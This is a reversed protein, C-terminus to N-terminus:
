ARKAFRGACYIGAAFLLLLYVYTPGADCGSGGGGTENPCIVNLNISDSINGTSATITVRGKDHTTVFGNVDVTAVDHNDSTWTIQGTAHWPEVLAAVYFNEGSYVRSPARLSFSEIDGPTKVQGDNMAKGIDLLGYESLYQRPNNGPAGIKNQNATELLIRKLQVGTAEKFSDNKSALLAMAGSVFPAAMSTGSSYGYTDPPITSYIGSNAVPNEGGPAAIHVFNEGWNSFSSANNNINTSAVVIMNKLGLYSAPADVFTGSKGEFNRRFTKGVERADNGAAHVIVPANPMSDFEKFVWYEPEKLLDEPGRSVDPEWGLSLNIAKINLGPHETILESVYVLAEFVNSLSGIRGDTVKLTILNVEPSVGVARPAAGSAAGIIGSVHTGHGDTDDIDTTSTSTFNKSNISDLNSLGPDNNELFGTHTQAIGTDLVAVSINRDGWSTVWAGPANIAALGWQVTGDYNPPSTALTRVIYNPSVALVEPNAKLEDMLQGTTKVDSKILAFVKDSTPTMYGHLTAVRAGAVSAASEAVRVASIQLSAHTRVGGSPMGKLVVIAEGERYNAAWATGWAGFLLFAFLLAPLIKRGLKMSIVGEYKNSQRIKFILPGIKCASYNCSLVINIRNCYIKSYIIKSDAATVSVCRAAYPASGSIIRLPLIVFIGSAVMPFIQSAGPAIIYKGPPKPYIM